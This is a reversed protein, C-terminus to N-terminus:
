GVWLLHDYQAAVMLTGGAGVHVAESCLNKGLISGRVELYPRVTCYSICIHKMHSFCCTLTHLPVNLHMHVPASTAM